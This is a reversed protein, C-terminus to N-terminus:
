DARVSNVFPFIANRLDMEMIYMSKYENMFFIQDGPLGFYKATVKRISEFTTIKDTYNIRLSTSNYNVTFVPGDNLM